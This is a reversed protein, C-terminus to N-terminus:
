TIVDRLNFTLLRAGATSNSGKETARSFCGKREESHRVLRNEM